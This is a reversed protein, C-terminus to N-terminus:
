EEVIHKSWYEVLKKKTTDEDDAIYETAKNFTGSYFGCDPNRKCYYIIKYTTSHRNTFDGNTSLNKNFTVKYPQWTDTKGEDYLTFSVIKLQFKESSYDTESTNSAEISTVTNGWNEKADKIGNITESAVFGLYGVLLTTGLVTMAANINQKNKSYELKGTNTNYVSLLESYSETSYNNNCLIVNYNIEKDSNKKINLTTTKYGELIFKIKQNEGVKISYKGTIDTSTNYYTGEIM